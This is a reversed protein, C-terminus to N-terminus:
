HQTMIPTGRSSWNTCIIIERLLTMSSQVAWISTKSAWRGCACAGRCTNGGPRIWHQCACNERTAPTFEFDYVEGVGIRQVAAQVRQQAAPLDAGDKALARWRVPVSDALVSFVLPVNTNINILRIRYRRGAELDVV